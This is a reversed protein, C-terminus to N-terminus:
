DIIKTVNESNIVLIGPTGRPIGLLWERFETVMALPRFLLQPWIKGVVDLFPYPDRLHCLNLSRLENRLWLSANLTTRTQSWDHREELRPKPHYAIGQSTIM